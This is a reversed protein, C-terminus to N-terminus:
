HSLTSNFISSNVSAKNKGLSITCMKHDFEYGLRDEYKVRKVSGILTPDILFFDLRSRSDTTQRLRNLRFPIYSIERQEPYLARFPEMVTGSRIWANIVDCNQPNPIRAGGGGGERDLNNGTVDKDLITNFDGGLIFPLNWALVRTRIDSFFDPDNGNPGYVAGLTLLQGKIKVKCLIVNEDQASFTELIEHVISRKIAIAVGRSDKRSNAYFKYSANRNLGMMRNIEPEKSGLRCDCIFLIDHKSKTIGDVKYYSKSNKQGMTSVNFSNVNICGIDLNLTAFNNM